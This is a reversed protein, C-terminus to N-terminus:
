LASVVFVAAVVLLMLGYNFFDPLDIGYSQILWLIFYIFVLVAFVTFARRLFVKLRRVPDVPVKSDTELLYVPIVLSPPPLGRNIEDLYRGM